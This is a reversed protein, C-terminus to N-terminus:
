ESCALNKPCSTRGCCNKPDFCFGPHKGYVPHDLQWIMLSCPYPLIKAEKAKKGTIKSAILMADRENRGECGGQTGDEFTIWYANM